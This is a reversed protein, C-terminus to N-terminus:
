GAGADQASRRAAPAETAEPGAAPRFRVRFRSGGGERPRVDAEAGVAEALLRVLHLGLGTGTATRTGENGLRHFAEFIRDREAPPIGPGRDEVELVVRGGEWLTRVRIRESRPDAPDYPAYKRANEVLNALIGSVVERSALIRPLAEALEFALDGNGGPFRTGPPHAAALEETLERVLASLDLAHPTVVGSTLRGKQLVREVLTSLRSTERLIRRHYERIQDPDDTWGELLMEGHLRISALPTRLEHTVAAVFNRTREAQELDRSVTREILVMGSVLVLIMMAAMGGFNNRQRRFRDHILETNVAVEVRGMDAEDPLASAFGLAELPAVHACVECSPNLAPDVGTRIIRESERLTQASVEDLLDGLLWDLDLFFGQLLGFGNNLPALCEANLPRESTHEPHVDPSMTIRRTAIARPKGGEERYFELFFDSVDVEPSWERMLQRHEDLCANTVDPSRMVALIHSPVTITRQPGMQAAREAKTATEKIERLNLSAREIEARRAELAQGTLDGGVFVSVEGSPWEFRDYSFWGLIGPELRERLLPSQRVTVKDGLDDDSAYFRSYQYFPRKAERDILTQLRERMGEVLREATESAEGPAAALQEEYDRVLVKWYLWGFVLTPLVLLVGYAAFAANRSNLARL